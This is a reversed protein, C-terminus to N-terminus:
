QPKRGYVTDFQLLMSSSRSAVRPWSEDIRELVAKRLAMHLEDTLPLPLDSARCLQYLGEEEEPEYTLVEHTM